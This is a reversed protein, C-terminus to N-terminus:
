RTGDDWPKPEKRRGMGGSVNETLWEEIAGVRDALTQHEARLDDVDSELDRVTSRLDSLQRENSASAKTAKEATHVAHNAGSRAEEGAELALNATKAAARHDEALDDIRDGTASLRQETRELRTEYGALMSGSSATEDDFTRVHPANKIAAAIAEGRGTLAWVNSRSGSPLRREGQKEILEADSLLNLHYSRSGSPINAYDTLTPSTLPEDAVRLVDIVALRKGRHDDIVERLDGLNWSGHEQFFDDPLNFLETVSETDDTDTDAQAM